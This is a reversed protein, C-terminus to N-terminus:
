EHLGAGTVRVTACGFPQLEVPVIGARCPLASVPDELGTCRWAHEIRPGARPFSLRARVRKGELERLRVVYGRGDEALKIAQISVSAPSVRVYRAVRAFWPNAVARGFRFCQGDTLRRGSTLSFRFLFPGEQGAKYNTHWYNNLAYSYLHGNTIPLEKLWQGTNIAELEILPADPSSWAVDFSGSDSVRLWDQIAFWDKCAGPLWDRGARVRGDGISYTIAPRRALFPFAVYVAEKAYTLRKDFEVRFEVQKRDEPLSVVLRASRFMPHQLRAALGEPVSELGACVPTTFHFPPVPQSLDPHIARNNAGEAYILQGLKWPAQPDVLERRCAKDFISTVAGTRPDLQVRYFRNERVAAHAPPAGSRGRMPADPLYRAERRRGEPAPVAVLEPVPPEWGRSGEPAGEPRAVPWSTGSRGSRLGLSDTAREAPARKPYGRLPHHTQETYVPPQAGPVGAPLKLVSLAMKLLGEATAAAQHAFGAKVAFQQRVFASEPQSISNYAGWTHEDYLLISSWLDRLREQPYDRRERALKEGALLSEAAVATAKAQRNLATEQASSAAGDEWYSGGCGRVVPIHAGYHQEIYQFFEYNASLIVKPYAYVRNWADVAQALEPNLPQNDSYAGHLHIADYPYDVRTEYERILSMVQEAMVDPPGHFRSGQAYGDHLMALVRSGDPGEWWVPSRRDLGGYRLIPARDQNIGMSLYRIGCHALVTPLSWVHSPVDTLTASRVPIGYRRALEHSYYFARFFEEDGLLGTLLNAYSAEVNIRGQRALRVLAAIQGPSRTALYDRVAWAGEVNWKFDPYRRCLDIAEDLNHSHVKVIETQLNTYGIDLHSAAAIFIQWRRVPQLTFRTTSTRGGARAAATAPTPRDVPPVALRLVADGMAARPSMGRVIRRGAAIEIAPSMPAADIVRVDVLQLLRGSRRVMLVTPQVQVPGLRGGPAGDATALRVDDYIVWSGSVVTLVIRNRGRHLASGRLPVELLYPRESTLTTLVQDGPGPSLAFEGAQGNVDVRYRAGIPAQVAVFAIELGYARSPSEDLNFLITFPHPRSGAWPDVPGPQIWPWDRAPDSTGVHFQIPQPFLRPWDGFEGARAFERCSRDPVGIRWVTDAWVAPTSAAAILACLGGLARLIYRGVRRRRTGPGCHM